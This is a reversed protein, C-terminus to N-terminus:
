LKNEILNVDIDNEMLYQIYGDEDKTTTNVSALQDLEDVLLSEDVDDSYISNEIEVMSIEQDPITIHITQRFFRISVFLVLIFSALALSFKPRSFIRIWGTLPNAHLAEDHIRESITVPLKEFYNEPVTFPNVKSVSEFDPLSNISSMIKDPLEEFYHDPVQFPNIANMGNLSSFENEFNTDEINPNKSM